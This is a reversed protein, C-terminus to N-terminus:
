TSAGAGRVSARPATQPAASRRGELSQAAKGTRRQKGRWRQHACASRGQRHGRLWATEERRQLTGRERARPADVVARAREWRRKLLEGM